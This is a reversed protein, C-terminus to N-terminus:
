VELKIQFKLMETGNLKLEFTSIHNFEELSTFESDPIITTPYPWAISFAPKPFRQQSAANKAFAPFVDDHFAFFPNSAVHMKKKAEQRVFDVDIKEKATSKVKDTM